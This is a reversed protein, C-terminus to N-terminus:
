VIMMSDSSTRLLPGLMWGFQACVVPLGYSMGPLLSAMVRLYTHTLNFRTLVLDDDVQLHESPILETALMRM